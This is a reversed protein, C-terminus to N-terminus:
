RIWGPCLCPYIFLSFSFPLESREPVVVLVGCDCLQLHLVDPLDALRYQSSCPPDSRFPRFQLAMPLSRRFRSRDRSHSKPLDRGLLAKM